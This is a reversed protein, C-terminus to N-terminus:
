RRSAVPRSHAPTISDGSQSRPDCCSITFILNRGPARALYCRESATGTYRQTRALAPATPVIKQRAVRTAPVMRAILVDAVSLLLIPKMPPPMIAVASMFPKRLPLATGEACAILTDSGHVHALSLRV